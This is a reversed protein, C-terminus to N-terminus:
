QHLVVYQTAHYRRYVRARALLPQVVAGGWNEFFEVDIQHFGQTLYIQAENWEPAHGTWDDIIPAQGDFSLRFGDDTLSRFTYTGSTPAYLKGTWKVAFYDRSVSPDPSNINHGWFLKGIADGATQDIEVAIEHNGAELHTTYNHYTNSQNNWDSMAVTGNLRLEYGEDALLKFTYDGEQPIRIEGHWLVRFTEGEILLPGQGGWSFNIEPDVKSQCFVRISNPEDNFYYHGWLGGSSYNGMGNADYFLNSSPIIQKAFGSGAWYLEAVAEGYGEFYEMQIDYLGAAPFYKNFPGFETPPHGNWDDLLTQGAVVLRAGDDNRTWFQYTGPSPILIKGLWRVFFNNRLVPVPPANNAEGYLGDQDLDWNGDLDAYYYDTPTVDQDPEGNNYNMVAKMPVDGIEDNPDRPQDPDPNGILLVWEIGQTQYREALWNRINDARGVLANGYDDETIIQVTHGMSEKHLVFEALKQSNDRIFNTTVIVYDTNADKDDDPPLPLPSFRYQPLMEHYNLFRRAAEQDMLTDGLMPDTQFRRVGIRQFTLRVIAKRILQLQGRVPNYQVPMFEIRVFKWKRMQSETYKRVTVGPYYADAHYVRQNRGNIIEKGEGWDTLLQGDVWAQLPPAPRINHKLSDVAEMELEYDLRLSSWDINPPVAVDYIKYPLQPDGPSNLWGFDTMSIAEGDELRQIELSPAELSFTIVEEVRSTDSGYDFPRIQSYVPLLFFLFIMILIYFRATKMM